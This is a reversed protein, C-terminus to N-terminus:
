SHRSHRVNGGGRYGGRHTPRNMKFHYWCKSFVSSDSSPNACYYEINNVVKDDIEGIVEGVIFESTGCRPCVFGHTEVIKKVQEPTPTRAISLLQGYSLGSDYKSGLQEIAEKTSCKKAKLLRFRKIFEDKTIM